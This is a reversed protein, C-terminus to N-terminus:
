EAKIATNFEGTVMDNQTELQHLFCAGKFLIGLFHLCGEPFCKSWHFSIYYYDLLSMGSHFDPQM